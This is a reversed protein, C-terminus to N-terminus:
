NNQSPTPNPADGAIPAITLETMLWPTSAPTEDFSAVFRLDHAASLFRRLAEVDEAAVM